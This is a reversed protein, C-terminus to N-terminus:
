ACDRCRHRECRDRGSEPGYTMTVRIEGGDPTYRLANNILNQLAQRIRCADVHCIVPSPPLETQFEISKM